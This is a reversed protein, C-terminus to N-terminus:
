SSTSINLNWKFCFFISFFYKRFTKNFLLYSFIPISYSFQFLIYSLPYNQIFNFNYLIIPIHFLYLLSTFFVMKIKNKEAKRAAAVILSNKLALNIRRKTTKYLSFLILLNLIFLIILPMIDRLLDHIILHYKSFESYNFDSYEYFYITEYDNSLNSFTINKVINVDINFPIYFLSCLILSLIVTIYLFLKKRFIELRRSILLYCDLSAAIEFIVSMLEFINVLYNNIWKQWLQLIYTTNHKGDKHYYIINPLIFLLYIFDCFSKFLLYGFFNSQCNLREKKQIKAFIIVCILNFILGIIIITRNHYYYLYDWINETTM